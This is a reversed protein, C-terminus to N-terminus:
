IKIPSGYNFEGIESILQDIEKLRDTLNYREQIFLRHGEPEWIDSRVMDSFEDITNWLHNPHYIDKAGPFNHVLPKCGTAMAEMVSMNQSEWPSTCVVFHKDKLWEAMNQVRGHLTIHATLDMEQVMYDWYHQFRPEVFEGAVHLHYPGLREDLAIEEMYTDELLQHFAQLMLMPGKKHTITGIYALNRGPAKTIVSGEEPNDFALSDKTFKYKELDVGNPIVYTYFDKQLNGKDLIQSIALDKVHKAVFILHDVRNWNIMPVMGHLVEYSHLRLILTKNNLLTPHNTIEAALQDAWEQWIIDAWAISQMIEQPHGSFSTMVQHSKSVHSAIDKIFSEEGPRCLFAIKMNLDGKGFLPSCAPTKGAGRESDKRSCM